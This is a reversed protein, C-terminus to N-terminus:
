RHQGSLNRRLGCNLAALHLAESLEVCRAVGHNNGFHAQRPDADITRSGVQFSFDRVEIEISRTVSRNRSPGVRESFDDHLTTRRCLQTSKVTRKIVGLEGRELEGVAISLVKARVALDM